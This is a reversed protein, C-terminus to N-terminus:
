DTSCFCFRTNLNSFATQCCDAFQIFQFKLRNKKELFRGFERNNDSTKQHKLVIQSRLCM